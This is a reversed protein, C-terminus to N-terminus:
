NGGQKKFASGDKRLVLAIASARDRSGPFDDQRRYIFHKEARLGTREATAAIDEWGSFNVVHDSHNHDMETAVFLLGGPRLLRAVENLGKEPDPLHELVEAMIAIDFSADDEPIGKLVDGVGLKVGPHLVGTRRLLDTCFPISYESIDYGTLDTTGGGAHHLLTWLHIGDGFGVELVRGGGHVEPLVSALFYHYKSYQTAVTFYSLFCYPWYSEIMYKENFYVNEKISEYNKEGYDGHRLFYNEYRAYDIVSRTMVSMCDWGMSDAVDLIEEGFRLYEGPYRKELVEITERIGGSLIKLVPHNDIDHLFRAIRKSFRM